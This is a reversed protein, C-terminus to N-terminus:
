TKWAIEGLRVSISSTNRKAAGSGSRPRSASIRTSRLYMCLKSRSLFETKFSIASDSSHLLSRGEHSDDYGSAAPLNALDQGTMEMRVPVRDRHQAPISTWGGPADADPVADCWAVPNGVEFLAIQADVKGSAAHIAAVVSGITAGNILRSDVACAQQILHDSRQGM